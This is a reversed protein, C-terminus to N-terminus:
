GKVQERKLELEEFSKVELVEATVGKPGSGMSNGLAVVDLSIGRKGDGLNVMTSAKDVGGRVWHPVMCEQMWAKDAGAAQMAALGWKEAKVMGSSGALRPGINKTLVRLNEYAQSRLLIEDALKRIFLSDNSQAQALGTFLLAM